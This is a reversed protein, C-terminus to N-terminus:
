LVTYGFDSSSFQSLSVTSYTTKKPGNMELMVLHHFCHEGKIYYQAKNSSGIKRHWNGNTKVQCIYAGKCNIVSSDTIGSLQIDYVYRDGNPRIDGAAQHLRLSLPCLCMM